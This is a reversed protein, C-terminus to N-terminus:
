ASGDTAALGAPTPDTVVIREAYRRVFSALMDAHYEYECMAIADPLGDDAALYKVWALNANRILITLQEQLNSM